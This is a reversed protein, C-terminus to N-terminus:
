MPNFYLISLLINVYELVLFTQNYTSFYFLFPRVFQITFTNNNYDFGGLQKNNSLILPRRPRRGVLMLEQVM